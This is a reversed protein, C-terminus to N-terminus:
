SRLLLLPYRCSRARLDNATCHGGHFDDGHLGATATDVNVGDQEFVGEIRLHQGITLM